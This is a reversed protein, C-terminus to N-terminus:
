SDRMHMFSIKPAPSDRGEILFAINGIHASAYLFDQDKKFIQEFFERAQSLKDEGKAIERSTIFSIGEQYLEMGMLYFSEESKRHVAFARRLCKGEERKENRDNHIQALLCLADFQQPNVDIVEQLVKWANGVDGESLCKKACQLKLQSEGVKYKIFGTIDNYITNFSIDLNFLLYDLIDKKVKAPITVVRLEEDKHKRGDIYGQPTRVFISSQALVRKQSSHLSSPVIASNLARPNEDFYDVDDYIIPCKFIILDGDYDFDEYCAFFLAVFINRTFDIIALDQEFHRLETLIEANATGPSFYSRANRVIASEVSILSLNSYRADISKKMHLGSYIKICERVSKRDNDIPFRYHRNVGRFIYNGGKGAELCENIVRQHELVPAGVGPSHKTKSTTAVTNM